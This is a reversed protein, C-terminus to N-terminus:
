NVVVFIKHFNHEGEIIIIIIICKYFEIITKYGILKIVLTQVKM